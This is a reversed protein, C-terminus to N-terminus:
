QTEKEDLSSGELEAGTAIVTIIDDASYAFGGRVTARLVERGGAKAIAPSGEELAAILPLHGKMIGFSGGGEGKENDRAYLTVSECRASVLEGEPTLIKITLPLESM